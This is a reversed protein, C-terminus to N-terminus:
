EPLVLKTIEMEAIFLGFFWSRRTKEVKLQLIRGDADSVVYENNRVDIPELKSEVEAISWYETLDGNEDVRIPMKIM